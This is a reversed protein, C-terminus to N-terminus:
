GRRRLTLLAVLLSLPLALLAFMVMGALAHAPGDGPIDSRVIFDVLGGVFILVPVTLISVLLGLRYRRAALRRGITWAVIFSIAGIGALVALLLPLDRM